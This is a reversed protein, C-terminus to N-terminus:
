RLNTVIFNVTPFLEGSHWEIKAVVRRPIEWSAAKYRFSHYLVIPKKPPRGVPRTLLHKVKDYLIQNRKLHIAYFYHEAELYGYINPDAFAADGRFFRLIDYGRYRNVIPELLSRWDDASHVNGNRLVARELDGFQNFCFLPHYCTCEVFGNYASGDQNGYTPSVSSDIDLIIQNLLRLQHIKDVWLGSLNMLFELNKPQTLIETEFRSMVSTSAASRKVAKGGAVHRMAPDLALREADNTDQYGALRSYISQRLLATLRHQTNKGTRIDRLESDVSSTLGLADDLERYALLGGDSTVKTGHFELKLKRDFDLRLADKRAEGM